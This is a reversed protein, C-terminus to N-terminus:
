SVFLLLYVWFIHSHTVIIFHDMLDVSSLSQLRGWSQEGETRDVPPWEGWCRSRWMGLWRRTLLPLETTRSRQGPWLHMIDELWMWAHYMFTSVSYGNHKAKQGSLNTLMRQWLVGASGTAM